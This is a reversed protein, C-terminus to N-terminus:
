CRQTIEFVNGEPDQFYCWYAGSSPGGLVETIAKVGKGVLEERAAHIDDVLFGVQFRKAAYQPLSPDRRLIELRNAGGMDFIVCDSGRESEKLGLASAYYAAQADMDDAVVGIWIPWRIPRQTSGPDSRTRQGVVNSIAFPNGEPDEFYCWFSNPGGEVESAPKVGNSLLHERASRVDDVLFSIQFRLKNYQIMRPNFHLIEMQNQEGMDLLVFNDGRETETLGLLSAYFAAQADMNRAVIGIWAPWGYKGQM